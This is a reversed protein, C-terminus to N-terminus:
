SWDIPRSYMPEELVTMLNLANLEFTEDFRNAIYMLVNKISDKVSSKRMDNYIFYLVHSLFMCQEKHVLELVDILTMNVRIKNCKGGCLCSLIAIVKTLMTKSSYLKNLQVIFDFCNFLLKKDQNELSFDVIEDDHLYPPCFAVHPRDIERVYGILTLHPNQQPEGDPNMKLYFV